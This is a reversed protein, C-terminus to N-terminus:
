PTAAANSNAANAVGQKIVKDVAPTTGEHGTFKAEWSNRRVLKKPEKAAAAQSGLATSLFYATAAVACAGAAMVQPSAM